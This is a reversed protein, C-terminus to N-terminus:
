VSATATLTVQNSVGSGPMFNGVNNNAAIVAITEGALVHAQEGDAFTAVQFNQPSIVFNNFSGNLDATTQMNQTRADRANTAALNPTSLGSQVTAQLFVPQNKNFNKGFVKVTDSSAIMATITPTSVASGGSGGGQTGGGGGTVGTSFFTTFQFSDSAPGTAFDNAPVVDWRYGAIPDLNPVLGVGPTHVTGSAIVTGPEVSAWEDFVTSVQWQWSTARKKTSAGPDQWSLGLNTDVQSSNPPLSQGDVNSHLTLNAPQLPQAVLLILQRLSISSPPPPPWLPAALAEMGRATSAGIYRAFASLSINSM